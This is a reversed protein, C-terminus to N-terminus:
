CLALATSKRFAGALTWDHAMSSGKLILVKPMAKSRGYSSHDIRIM